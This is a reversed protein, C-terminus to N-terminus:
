IDFISPSVRRIFINTFTYILLILLNATSFCVTQGISVVSSWIMDTPTPPHLKAFWCGFICLKYMICVSMYM